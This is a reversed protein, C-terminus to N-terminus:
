WLLTSCSINSACNLGMGRDLWTFNYPKPYDETKPKLKDMMNTSVANEFNGGDIFVVFKGMHLVDHASFTIVYACYTRM